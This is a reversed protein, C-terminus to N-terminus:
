EAPRVLRVAFGNYRYRNSRVALSDETFNLGYSDHYTSYSSSWYNGITKTGRVLNGGRFGNAVLFVCGADEMAAWDAVTYNNSSFDVDTVNINEPLTVSAPHTYKDPFMIVGGNGNVTVKAFRANAVGNLMSANRTFLVYNWEEQTLTRWTGADDINGTLPNYIANRVGWDYDSGAINPNSMNISPGYGFYNYESLEGDGPARWSTATPYFYMAYPDNGRNDFGSTGWGFSSVVEWNAYDDGVDLDEEEVIEYQSEMFSWVETTKNYLLNGPAFFVYRHDAVSFAKSYVNLHDEVFSIISRCINPNTTTSMEDLKTDGDYLAITFGNALSGPPLMIYFYTPTTNNLVIGDGCNLTVIHKNVDNNSMVGSGSVPKGESDIDTTYQGWLVDNADAILEIRKVTIGDGVLPFCIGGFVNKFRLTQDTSKATMPMAKEDFSNLQYNQTAPIYFTASNGSVSNDIGQANTAPYIATFDGTTFDYTSGNTTYFEGNTTNKGDTLQFTRTEIGNNVKIMDSDTWQVEIHDGQLVGHTRSGGDQETTARFGMGDATGGNNDEKKNCSALLSTALLGVMFLKTTNKM